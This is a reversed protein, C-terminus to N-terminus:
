SFEERVEAFHGEWRGNKEGEERKLALSLCSLVPVLGGPTWSLM